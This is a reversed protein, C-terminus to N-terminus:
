LNIKVVEFLFVVCRVKNVGSFVIDLMNMLVIEYFFDNKIKYSFVIRMVLYIIDEDDNKM